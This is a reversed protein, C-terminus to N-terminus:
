HSIVTVAYSFRHSVYLLVDNEIRRSLEERYLKAVDSTYKAKVDKNDLLHGAGHKNYFDRASQNGGCRMIRLQHTSWSDLNTSRVFSLHVGLNRHISSCDLCIYIGYTASAWTPNKAPCDFCTKNFKNLKFNKFVNVLEDKSYTDEEM